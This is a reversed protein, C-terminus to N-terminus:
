FRMLNTKEQHKLTAIVILEKKKIRLSLNSILGTKDVVLDGDYELHKIITEVSLSDANLDNLAPQENAQNQLTVEKQPLFYGHLSLQIKDDQNAM